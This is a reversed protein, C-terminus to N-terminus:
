YHHRSGVYNFDDQEGCPHGKVIEYVMDDIFRTELEVPHKGYRQLSMELLQEIQAETPEPDYLSASCMFADELDQRTYATM